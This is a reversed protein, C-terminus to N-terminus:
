PGHIGCELQLNNLICGMPYSQSPTTDSSPDLNDLTKQTMLQTGVHQVLSMHQRDVSTSTQVSGYM